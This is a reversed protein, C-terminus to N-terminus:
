GIGYFWFREHANDTATYEQSIPVVTAGLRELGYHSRLSRYVAMGLPFKLWMM